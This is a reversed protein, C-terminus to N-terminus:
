KQWKWLTYSMWILIIILVVGIPILIHLLNGNKPAKYTQDSYSYTICNANNVNKPDECDLMVEGERTTLTFKGKDPDNEATNALPKKSM